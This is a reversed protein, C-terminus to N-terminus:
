VGIADAPASDLIADAQRVSSALHADELHSVAFEAPERADLLIVPRNDASLLAALDSTTLSPVEPFKQVIVERVYQWDFPGTDQACGACLLLASCLAILRHTSGRQSVLAGTPVSPRRM